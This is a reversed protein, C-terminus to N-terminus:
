SVYEFYEFYDDIAAICCRIRGAQIIGGECCYLGTHSLKHHGEGEDVSVDVRLTYIVFLEVNSVLIYDSKARLKSDVVKSIDLLIDNFSIDTKQRILLELSLRDSM